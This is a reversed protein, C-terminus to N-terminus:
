LIVCSSNNNGTTYPNLNRIKYKFNKSLHLKAEDLLEDDDILDRLIENQRESLQLTCNFTLNCIKLHTRITYRTRHRLSQRKVNCQYRYGYDDVYQLYNVSIPYENLIENWYEKKVNIIRKLCLVRYIHLKTM